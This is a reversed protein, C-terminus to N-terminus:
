AVGVPIAVFMGVVMVLAVGRERDCLVTGVAAFGVAVGETGDLGAGEGKGIVDLMRGILGARLMDALLMAVWDEDNACAGSWFAAGRM